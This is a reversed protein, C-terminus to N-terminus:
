CPAKGPTSRMEEFRKKRITAIDAERIAIDRGTKRLKRVLEPSLHREDLPLTYQGCFSCDM